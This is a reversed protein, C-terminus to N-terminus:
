ALVYLGGGQTTPTATSSASTAGEDTTSDSGTEFTYTTTRRAQQERPNPAGSPAGDPRADAGLSGGGTVELRDLRLGRDALSKQLDGAAQALMDGTQHHQAILSATASQGDAAIHLRVTLGGLEAPSLTMRMAKGGEAGSVRLRTELSDVLKAFRERDVTLSQPVASVVPTAVVQPAPQMGAVSSPVIPTSPVIATTTGTPDVAAVVPAAPTQTAPQQAAPQGDATDGGSKASSSDASGSAAV